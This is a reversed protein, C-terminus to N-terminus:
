PVEPGCFIANQPVALLLGVQLRERGRGTGLPAPYLAPFAFGLCLGGRHLHGEARRSLQLLLSSAFGVVALVRLRCEGGVLPAARGPTSAWGECARFALLQM